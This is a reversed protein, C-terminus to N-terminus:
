LEFHEKFFACPAFAGHRSRREKKINQVVETWLSDPGCFFVAPKSSEVVSQIVDALIPRGTSIELSLDFQRTHVTRNRVPTLGVENELADDDQDTTTLLQRGDRNQRRRTREGVWTGVVTVLVAAYLIYARVFIRDQFNWTEQNYWILHLLTTAVLCAASLSRTSQSSAEFPRATDEETSENQNIGGRHEAIEEANRGSKTDTYTQHISVRIQSTESFQVKAKPNRELQDLVPNLYNAVVYQILAEERCYWHIHIQEQRDLSGSQLLKVLVSVIPTIGIGGAILLSTHHQQIESMWDPGSHITDVWITVPQEHVLRQDLAQTFRGSTRILLRLSDNDIPHTVTFPHWIWPSIEPVCLQVYAPYTLITHNRPEEGTAALRLEFCGHSQPIRTWQQIRVRQRRLLLPLSGAGYYLIGPLLYVAIWYYHCIVLFLFLTGFIMHCFYFIQYHTRRIWNWSTLTIALLSLGALIGTFNRWPKYCHNDHDNQQFQWPTRLDWCHSQSPLLEFIAKEYLTTATPSKSFLPKELAYLTGHLLILLAAWRGAWVHFQVALAPSLGLAELLPSQRSVPVLFLSLAVTACYGSLSAWKPYYHAIWIALPNDSYGSKDLKAQTDEDMPRGLLILLLLITPLVLLLLSWLKLNPDGRKRVLPTQTHIPFIWLITPLVCLLLTLLIAPPWMPFGKHDAQLQWTWWLGTWPHCVKVLTSGQDNWFYQAGCIYDVTFYYFVLFVISYTITKQLFITTRRSILPSHHHIPPHQEDHFIELPERHDNGAPQDRTSTMELDGRVHFNNPPGATSEDWM